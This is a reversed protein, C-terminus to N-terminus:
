AHAKQLERQKQLSAENYKLVRAEPVWEDWSSTVFYDNKLLEVKQWYM